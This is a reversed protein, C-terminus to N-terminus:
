SGNIDPGVGYAELYTEDYVGLSLESELLNESLESCNAKILPKHWAPLLFRRRFQLQRQFLM